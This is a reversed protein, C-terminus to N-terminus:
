FVEWGIQKDGFLVFLGIGVSLLNWYWGSTRGTGTRRFQREYDDWKLGLQGGKRSGASREYSSCSFLIVSILNPGLFHHRSFKM